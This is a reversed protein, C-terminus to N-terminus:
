YRFVVPPEGSAADEMLRCHAFARLGLERQWPMWSHLRPGVSLILM